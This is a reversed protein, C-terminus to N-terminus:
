SISALTGPTQTTLGTIGSDVSGLTRILERRGTIDLKQYIHLAHSEVTRPSIRLHDAIQRLTLRTCLLRAIEAERPSLSQTTRPFSLREFLQTEAAEASRVLAFVREAVPRVHSFVEADSESFAKANRGRHVCLILERRIVHDYFGMGLSHGIYLPRNFDCDYETDGHRAWSVPGLSHERWDYEAPCCRNFHDNFAPILPESYDPWRLCHPIGRRMEFMAVGNEAPVLQDLEDFLTTLLATTDRQRCLDELLEVVKYWRSDSAM